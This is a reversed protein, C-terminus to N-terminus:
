CIQTTVRGKGEGNEHDRSGNESDKGSEVKGRTGQRGMM